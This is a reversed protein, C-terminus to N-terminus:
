EHYGSASSYYYYYIEAMSFQKVGNAVVGLISTRSVSLTEIVHKFASRDSVGLGVVMILGSTLPTLIKADAIGAIPPTDFIVLDFANEWEQTLQRMTESALLRNSDPPTPGSTLVYFNNNTPSRQMGEELQLGTSIVNSLGYQNPLDLMQHIQPRRMDADVLLVRKGVSAAAQGLNLATTSKGEGMVSSSIVLSKIPQDPNMFSLNTHLTKFSEVFYSSLVEELNERPENVNEEDHDDNGETQATRERQVEDMYVPMFDGKKRNALLKQYPIVSLLPLKTIEKLEDPSHFKTDIKEALYAAAAGALIGAIAGFALGRQDTPLPNTPVFPAEVLQWPLTNQAAQMKLQERRDIFRRLNEQAIELRQNIGEYQRALETIGKLDSRVEKEAEELATQRVRLVRIQNTAAILDQTLSLRIPNPSTVQSRIQETVRGDGLVALSEQKLLELITERQQKLTEINPSDETFRGLELAIQTEIEKLQNLLEQYRPAESLAITTMAEDLGLGLQKLINERLSLNEEIAIETAQQRQQLSSINESLLTAKESPNVVNNENRFQQIETQISEVRDRLIPIQKEILDLVRQEGTQQQKESYDIYGEAVAKTVAGALQPDGSEYSVELIKTPGLRRIQLNSVLQSYGLEPYEQQLEEYIPRMVRSSNLVEIQTPYDLRGSSGVDQGLERSLEQFQEDGAIPEVLLRFSSKYRSAPTQTLNRTWDWTVVAIMVILILWLRRRAVAIIQRYNFSKEESASSLIESTQSNAPSSNVSQPNSQASSTM